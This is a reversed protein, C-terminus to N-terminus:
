TCDDIRPLCTQLTSHKKLLNLCLALLTVHLVSVYAIRYWSRREITKLYTDENDVDQAEHQISLTGEGLLYGQDSEM